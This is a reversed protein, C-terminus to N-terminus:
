TVLLILHTPSRQLFAPEFGAECLKTLWFRSGEVIRHPNTGNPLLKRAPVTCIVFYGVKKTVRRLDKLVNDLYEPEIHELVDTCAVLDHPLPSEAYEPIAPDYPTIPIAPLAKQLTQRGCGYDLVTAIDVRERMIGEIAKANQHGSTAYHECEELMQANLKRYEESITKM